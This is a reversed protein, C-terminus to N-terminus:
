TRQHIARVDDSRIRVSPRRRGNRHTEASRCKRCETTRGNPRTYLDGDSSIPHGNVCEDGVALTAAARGRRVNEGNTVAELHDVRVCNRVRCKHDIVLGEPIPGHVDAYAVRHALQLRGDIQLMGYGRNNTAGVWVVCTSEVTKTAFAAPLSM